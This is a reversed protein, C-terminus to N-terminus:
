KDTMLGFPTLEFNMMASFSESITYPRWGTTSAMREPQGTSLTTICCPIRPSNSFSIRCRVLSYSTGICTTGFSRRLLNAPPLWWPTMAKIEGIGKWRRSSIKGETNSFPWVGKITKNSPMVSTRLKPAMAREASTKPAWAMTIELLFLAWTLASATLVEAPAKVMIGTQRSFLMTPAM